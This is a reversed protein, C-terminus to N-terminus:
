RKTTTTTRTTGEGSGPGTVTASVTTSSQSTEAVPAFRGLVTKSRAREPLLRDFSGHYWRYAGYVILLLALVRKWPLGKDAYRDSSDRRSGPPLRAVSTLTAGFPVNIKADANVAWGSADLLPGLNRKRLKIYALVVSPMSILLMVGVIALVTPLVGLGIIGTAYGVVATIFTGVAGVAVGLAAVSGVDIKKPEPPKAKDVNVTTTAVTSLKGQADADAAAARKAVQEEILRVFKKYPAWFAQRLSIPNEIIKTITADWDRGQRDYFVGNRGVMLNDSHGATFAAVIHMKEGTAKRVCDLYALYSGALGAMTAHKAQDEVRLCLRCARQDLYLTGCQFTAPEAGDYFDEFNVFNTCLLYLDRYYRVLREVSEISTAEAELAKDKAILATLTEKATSARLERIRGEGLKEIRLGQKEGLWAEYPALKERLSAWDAETLEARAGLLPTVATDALAKVAAAHAPNISGALPLPALAAVKALPFGAVEDATISFDAAAIELYEEEMRNLIAVSRADFAALRCRGFFDEVKARIASVAEAAAATREPGLPFVRAADGEAKAYWDAHAAIEAFFAEVKETGVGPKGSRDVDTGMCDLVERIVARTADDDASAETIVGDGNFATDAFIKAPDAVDEIAISTADPKGINTLIQRASSLLTKGEPTADNIAALPLTAAGKLLEDPNKLNSTAFKVAAILEPVRVRADKDTDILALTRPDIELGSTPCALAVWLKQDLEDLHVLDDGSELKVQDFGGARFFTWRRTKAM